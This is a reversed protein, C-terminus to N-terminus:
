NALSQQYESFGQWGLLTRLLQDSENQARKWAKLQQAPMTQGSASTGSVSQANAGADNGTLQAGTSNDTASNASAVSTTAQSTGNVAKVFDRRLQNIVQVDEASLNLNIKQPDIPQFILPLAGGSPPTPPLVFDLSSVPVTQRALSQISVRRPVFESTFSDVILQLAVDDKQIIVSPGSSDNEGAVSLLTWGEVSNGPSLLVTKKTPREIFSAYSIGDIRAIGALSYTFDQEPSVCAATSDNAMAFGFSITFAAIVSAIFRHASFRNGQFAHGTSKM